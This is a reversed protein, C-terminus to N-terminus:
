ADSIDKALDGVTLEEIYQPAAYYKTEDKNLPNVRKTVRYKM